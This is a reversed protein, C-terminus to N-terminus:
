FELYTHLQLDSRTAWLLGFHARFSNFVAQSGKLCHNKRQFFVKSFVVEIKNSVPIKSDLFVFKQHLIAQAASGLLVSFSTEDM